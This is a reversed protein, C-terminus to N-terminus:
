TGKKPKKPPLTETYAKSKALYAGLEQPQHLLAEPVEVHEAINAGYNVFPKTDHEAIFAQYHDPSLRIGMRGDKTLSSYMYGNTSTFPLKKAGKLEIDPQTAIAARYLDILEEPVEDPDNAM